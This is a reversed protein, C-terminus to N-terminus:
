PQLLYFHKEFCIQIQNLAERKLGSGKGKIIVRYFFCYFYSEIFYNM